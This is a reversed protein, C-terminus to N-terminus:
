AAGGSAPVANSRRIDEDRDREAQAALDDSAEAARLQDVRAVLGAAAAIFLPADVPIYWTANGLAFVLYFILYAGLARAVVDRKGWKWVGRLVVTLVSGYFALGAVGETVAVNLLFNHPGYGDHVYVLFYRWSWAYDNFPYKVFFDWALVDRMVRDAGNGSSFDLLHSMTYGLADGVQRGWLLWAVIAILAAPVIWPVIRRIQKSMVLCALGAIAFAVYGSRMNTLVLGVLSIALLPITSRHAIDQSLAVVFPWAFLVLAGGYLVRYRLEGSELYYGAGGTAASYLGWAALGVAAIVVLMGARRRTRDDACMVLVMPFLLWTFRVAMESMIATPKATGLWVAVPLVVLLEFALYAILIRCMTRAGSRETAGAFRFLPGVGLLGTLLLVVEFYTITGLAPLKTWPLQTYGMGLTCFTVLVAWVVLRRTLAGSSM